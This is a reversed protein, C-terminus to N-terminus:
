GYYDGELVMIYAIYCMNIATLRHKKLTVPKPKYGTIVLALDFQQQFKPYIEKALKNCQLQHEDFIMDIIDTIIM